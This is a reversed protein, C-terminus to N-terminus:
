NVQCLFRNRSPKPLYVLTIAHQRGPRQEFSVPSVFGWITFAQFFVICWGARHQTFVLLSLGPVVAGPFGGFLGHGAPGETKTLGSLVNSSGTMLGFAGDSCVGMGLLGVFGKAADDIHLFQHVAKGDGCVVVPKGKRIRDLWSFERAIQRNVGMQPGYTTSPKVLTVPFGFDHHAQLYVEDAAHKNRGYESIPHIPHDETVPLWDYDVGYTCM